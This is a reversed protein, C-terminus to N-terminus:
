LKAPNKGLALLLQLVCSYKELQSKWPRAPHLITWRNEEALSHLKPKPNVITAQHCLELMPLDATSDTYGRSNHLQGDVYYSEPLVERLRIVKNFGKHNSLQPFLKTNELVTGLSLDFGLLKGVEAAYCEPSASSLITLHGSHKHNELSNILESYISPLLKKAFEASLQQLREPKMRWLFCHFIRKMKETGLLKAFPLFVLFLPISFLRWPEARVVHHRFLLQCDWALLTGDMDFLGIGEPPTESLNFERPHSSDHVSGRNTKPDTQNM